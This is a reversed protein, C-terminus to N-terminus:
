ANQEEVTRRWPAREGVLARMRWRITKKSGVLSNRLANLAQLVRETEASNLEYSGLADLCKAISDLVDHYLGWDESCLRTIYDANVLGPLDKNGFPLDKLITIIDRIDKENLRSISLKSLLLDSLSLTSDEIELRDKLKIRHEFELSDLFVDIHDKSRPKEFVLRRGSTAMTMSTNEVYGFGEMVSAIKTSQSSLGAFDIDVHSRECFAIKTCHERIGLGGVLRLIVDKEKAEQLIKRAETLDM